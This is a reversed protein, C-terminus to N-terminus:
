FVESIYFSYLSDANFETISSIDSVCRYEPIEIVATDPYRYQSIFHRIAIHENYSQLLLAYEINGRPKHRLFDLCNFGGERNSTSM